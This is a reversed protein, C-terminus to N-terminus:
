PPPPPGGRGMGFGMGPGMRGNEHYTELQEETLFSSLREEIVGRFDYDEGAQRAIMMEQATTHVTNYFQEEVQPDMDMVQAMRVTQNTAMLEARNYIEEQSSELYDAFQDDTLVGAIAEDMNFPEVAEGRRRARMIEFHRMFMDRLAAQQEETLDYEGAMRAVRGAIRSEVRERIREEFAEAPDTDPEVPEGPALEARAGELEAELTEIRNQQIRLRDQLAALDAPEVAPGATEPGAPMPAPKLPSLIGIVVVAALIGGLFCLVMLAAHSKSISMGGM